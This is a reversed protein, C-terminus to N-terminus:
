YIRLTQEPVTVALQYIPPQGPASMLRNHIIQFDPSLYCFELFRGLVTQRLFRQYYITRDLVKVNPMRFLAHLAIQLGFFSIYRDPRLGITLLAVCDQIVSIEQYLFQIGYGIAIFSLITALAREVYKEYNVQYYLLNFFFRNRITDEGQGSPLNWYGPSGSFDENTQIPAM